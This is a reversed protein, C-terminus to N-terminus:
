SRQEIPGATEITLTQEKDEALVRLSEAVSTALEALDGVDLM